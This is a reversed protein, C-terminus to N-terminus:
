FSRGITVDARQYDNTAKASGGVCGCCAALGALLVVLICTRM